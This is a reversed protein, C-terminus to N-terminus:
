TAPPREAVSSAPKASGAMLRAPRGRRFRLRFNGISVTNGPHVESRSVRISDVFVGNASNLDEVVIRKGTCSILAHHRSVFPSDLHLECDDARGVRLRTPCGGLDMVKTLKGDLFLELVAAGGSEGGRTDPAAHAGAALDDQVPVQRKPGERMELQRRLAANVRRLTELSKGLAEAKERTRAAALLDGHLAEVSAQLQANEQELGRLGERAESLAASARHASGRENELEAVLDQLSREMKQMTREREALSAEKEALERTRADLRDHLQRLEDERRAVDALALGKERTVAELKSSLEALQVHVEDLEFGHLLSAQWSEDHWTGADPPLDRDTKRRRKGRMSMVRPLFQNAAAVSRIRHENIARTGQACSEALVAHCLRNIAGPIGGTFRYILAFSGDSLEVADTAKALDLRHRVYDITEAESYARVHFRTERRLKLSRMAPSEIIRPLNPNGALVISVVYENGIKLEATSRLQELVAPRALQADDVFFLVPRGSRGCHILFERTIGQLEHLSGGIEGFGLQALFSSYFQSGEACTADFTAYCLDDGLSSVHKNLLTTKGAGDAGCVLILSGPQDAAEALRSDLLSCQDSQFIESPAAPTGFPAREMGFFELYTPASQQSAPLAAM